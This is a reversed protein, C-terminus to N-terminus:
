KTRTFVYFVIAIMTVLVVVTLSQALSEPASLNLALHYVCIGIMITTVILLVTCVLIGAFVFLMLIAIGITKLIEIITNM